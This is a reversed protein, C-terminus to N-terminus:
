PYCFGLREGNEPNRRADLPRCTTGRTCEPAQLDCYSMCRAGSERDRFDLWCGAGDTCPNPDGAAPLVCAEGVAIPTDVGDECGGVMSTTSDPRCTTGAPCRGQMVLCRTGPMCVGVDNVQGRPQADACHESAGCTPRGALDRVSCLQRCVGEHCWLGGVCRTNTEPRQPWPFAGGACNQGLQRQGGEFCVGVFGQNGDNVPFCSGSNEGQGNCIGLMVGNNYRAEGCFNYFCHNFPEGNVPDTWCRTIALSCEDTGACPQMCRTQNDIFLNEGVCSLGESCEFHGDCPDIERRNCQFTTESSYDCLGRENCSALACHVPECLDDRPVEEDLCRGDLEHCSSLCGVETCPPEGTQCLGEVCQEAGNCFVGDDCEDDSFCDANPDVGSDAPGADMVTGADAPLGADVQQGSDPVTVGADPSDGNTGPGSPCACLLVCLLTSSRM